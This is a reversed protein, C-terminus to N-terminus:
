ATSRRVTPGGFGEIAPRVSHGRTRGAGDLLAYSIGRGGVEGVQEGVQRQPQGGLVIHARNAGGM